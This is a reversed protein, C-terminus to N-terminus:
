ARHDPGDVRDLSQAVIRTAEEATTSSPAVNVNVVPATPQSAPGLLGGPSAQNTNPLAVIPTALGLVAAALYLWLAIDDPGILGFLVLIPIAAAVVGYLYRRTEPKTIIM